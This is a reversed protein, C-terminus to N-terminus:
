PAPPRPTLKIYAHQTLEPILVTFYHEMLSDCHSAVLPDRIGKVDEERLRQGGCYGIGQEAAAQGDRVIKSYDDGIEPFSRTPASGM